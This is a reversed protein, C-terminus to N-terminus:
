RSWSRQHNWSIFETAREAWDFLFRETEQRLPKDRLRPDVSVVYFEFGRAGTAKAAQAIPLTRRLESPPATGNRMSEFWRVDHKIKSLVSNGTEGFRLGRQSWYIQAYIGPSAPLQEIPIGSGKKFATFLPIDKFVTM